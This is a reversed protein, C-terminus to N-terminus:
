FIAKFYNKFALITFKEKFFRRAAVVLMLAIILRIISSLNFMAYFSVNQDMLYSGFIAGLVGFFNTLAMHVGLYVRSKQHIFNQIMLVQNLELGGWAIGSIIEVAILYNLNRSFTWLLPISSIYLAAIIVGLFASYEKGVRGWRKFFLARGFFTISSLIVFKSMSLKLDNLMFPVFFPGSMMVSFRFLATLFIFSFLLKKTKIELNIKEDLLNQHIARVPLPKRILFYQLLCSIIRAMAGVIFITIIKFWPAFHALFAFSLYFFLILSWTFQNRNALYKRFHRKPIIRSAWDIWLPTSAQGGIFYVSAYILLANYSFHQYVTHLIGVLGIIQIVMTWVVSVGLNKESVFKPVLIQAFAGLLLPITSLIALEFSTINQKVAYYTLFSETSAFMLAFLSAEFHSLKVTQKFNM